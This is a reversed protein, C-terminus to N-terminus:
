KWVPLASQPVQVGTAQAHGSKSKWIELEQEGSVPISSVKTQGFLPFQTALWHWSAFPPTTEASLGLKQLNL